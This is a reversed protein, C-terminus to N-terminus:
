SETFAAVYYHAIGIYLTGEAVAPSSYIGYPTRYQWRNEGTALDLAYLAGDKSGIYVVEGAIVASALVEEATETKWVIQGTAKDLCYVFGDTSGMVLRNEAIASSSRIKGGLLAQWIIQGSALDVAYVMCDDSGCFVHGDSIAPSSSIPGNTNMQWRLQGDAVQFAYLSNDWSGVVVVDEAVAPAALIQDETPMQWVIEGSDVDIAWMSGAEDGVFIRNDAVTVPARIPGSLQRHWQEAGSGSQLAYLNGDTSGFVVTHGAVAATAEVRNGTAFKYRVTGRQSDLAYFNKDRSGVYVVGDAVAPSAVVPGETRTAWLQKLPPSLTQAVYGSHQPSGGFMLWRDSGRAVQERGAAVAELARDIYTQAVPTTASQQAQQLGAEAKDFERRLSQAEGLAYVLPGTMKARQAAKHLKTTAKDSVSLQGLAYAAAWPPNAQSAVQNLLVETSHEEGLERLSDTIIETLQQDEDTLAEILAQESRRTGIQGLGGAALRRQDSRGSQLLRTLESELVRLYQQAQRRIFPVEDQAGQVLASILDRHLHNAIHQYTTKRVTESPDTLLSAIVPHQSEGLQGARDFWYKTDVDHVATSRIILELEEPSLRLERRHEGIIHLTESGMLLGFKQFNNLERTLLDQVDKLKIEEESMWDDVKESLYEHVLEYNRHNDREVSRLLRYDVLKALVRQVMEPRQGVEQAIRDAPRTAKLESSAAMDKLITRAIRRELLPLQSLTYNLYDALIRESKGLREYTHQTITRSGPSLGEYLRHCVIQLQAPEVGERYLDEVIQDMLDREIQIDFNLAPKLIASHAEQHGLKGLRYMNHMIDSLRDQLEYLEGVFDERMSLVLHSEAPDMALYDEVESAFRDRVKQGLKVFFEEFQDLFVVVRHGTIQATQALLEGWPGQAL